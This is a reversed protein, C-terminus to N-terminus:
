AKDLSLDQNSRADILGQAGLQDQRRLLRDVSAVRRRGIVLRISHDDLGRERLWAVFASLLQSRTLKPWGAAACVTGLRDRFARVSLRSGANRGSLVFADRVLTSALGWRLLANAGPGLICFSVRHGRRACTVEWFPTKGADRWALDDWCLSVIAEVDLGSFCALSAVAGDRASINSAKELIDELDMPGPTPGPMRIQVRRGPLSLGADHWGRSQAKPLAARFKAIRRRGEQDGVDFLLLRQFARVRLQITSVSLYAESELLGAATAPQECLQYLNFGLDREALRALSRLQSVESRVTSPAAQLCERYLKYHLLLSVSGASVDLVLPEALLRLQLM